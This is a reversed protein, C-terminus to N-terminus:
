HKTRKQLYWLEVFINIKVYKKHSKLKNETWFSDFCNLCPVDGHHKSTIGRFLLPLKKVALYHWREKEKNPIM